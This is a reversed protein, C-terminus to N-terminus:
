TSCALNSLMPPRLGRAGTREVAAALAAPNGCSLGLNAGEPLAELEAASYGLERALQAAAQPASGCCSVGPGCCGATTDAAIRAYGARVADRVQEPEPPLPSPTM